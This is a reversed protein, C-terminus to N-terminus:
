ILNSVGEHKIRADVLESAHEDSIGTGDFLPFFDQNFGDVDRV